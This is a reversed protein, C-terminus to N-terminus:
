QCTAILIAKTKSCVWGDIGAIWICTKWLRFFVNRFHEVFCVVGAGDDPFPVHSAMCAIVREVTTELIEVSEERTPM